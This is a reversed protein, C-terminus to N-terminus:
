DEAKNKGVFYGGIAGAAIYAIREAFETQGAYMAALLFAFVLIAGLGYLWTQRKHQGDFVSAQRERDKSQAEISKHAIESNTDLEHKALDAEAIRADLERHQLEIFQSITKSDHQQEGSETKVPMSREDAM